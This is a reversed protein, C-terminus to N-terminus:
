EDEVEKNNYDKILQKWKKNKTVRCLGQILNKIYYFPYTIIGIKYCIDGLIDKWSINTWPMNEQMTYKHIDKIIGIITKLM